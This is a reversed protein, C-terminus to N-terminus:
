WWRYAHTYTSLFKSSPWVKQLSLPLCEKEADRRRSLVKQSRSRPRKTRGVKLFSAKTCQDCKSFFFNVLVLDSSGRRAFHARLTATVYNLFSMMLSQSPLPGHAMTGNVQFIAWWLRKLIIYFPGNFNKFDNFFASFPGNAFIEEWDSCWIETTFISMQQCSFAKKNVNRVFYLCMPVTYFNLILVM